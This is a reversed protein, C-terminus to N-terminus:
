IPITDEVRGQVLHIKARGYGLDLVLSKVEDLEARCWNSGNDDPLKFREQVNSASLGDIAIDV